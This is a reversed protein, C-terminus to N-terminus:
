KIGDQGEQFQMSRMEMSIGSEVPTYQKSNQTIPISEVV